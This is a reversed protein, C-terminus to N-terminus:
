VWVEKRKLCNDYVEESDKCETIVVTEFGSGPNYGSFDRDCRPCRFVAFKIDSERVLSGSALIDWGMYWKNCFPCQVALHRIPADEFEVRFNIAM